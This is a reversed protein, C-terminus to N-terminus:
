CGKVSSLRYVWDSPVFHGGSTGALRLWQSIRCFDKSHSTKLYSIIHMNNFSYRLVTFHSYLIIASLSYSLSLQHRKVPTVALHQQYGKNSASNSDTKSNGSHDNLSGEHQKKRSKLKSYSIVHHVNKMQKTTLLVAEVKFGSKRSHFSTVVTSTHLLCNHFCNALHTTSWILQRSYSDRILCSQFTYMMFYPLRGTLKELALITLLQYWLLSRVYQM